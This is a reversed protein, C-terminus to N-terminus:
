NNGSAVNFCKTIKAIRRPIVKLNAGNLANENSIQKENFMAWGSGSYWYFMAEKFFDRLEDEISRHNLGAYKHSAKLTIRLIKRLLWPKGTFAKDFWTWYRHEMRIHRAIGDPFLLLRSELRKQKRVSKADANKIIILSDSM